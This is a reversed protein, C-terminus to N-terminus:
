EIVEDAIALLKDPVDLGLARATRLNIFLDFKTPQLVPLDGPKEGKLVRGAYSGALRYADALSSGYSMLGGAVVFERDAYCAPIAHRMALALIQDRRTDFFPDGQVILVDARGQALAGFAMEFDSESGAKVLLLKRGFTNAATQVDRIDDEGYPNSPNALMGVIAAKPVLEHLLGLRKAGLLTAFQTIGTVSGGPRNLSAVLSMKIPDGGTTFIIPITATAAKAALAAPGFAAIITVQRRVLDAALAPLRDFQGHAWRYEVVVNTGEVYDSESLGRRFAAALPAASDPSQANLFGIVPMAAPQARAALPWTVAAGGLFTTFERRRM